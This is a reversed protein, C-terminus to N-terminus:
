IEWEFIDPEVYKWNGVFNGIKLYSENCKSCTYAQGYGPAALDGAYILENRCVPCELRSPEETVTTESDHGKWTAERDAKFRLADDLADERSPREIGANETWLTKDGDMCRVVGKYGWKTKRVTAKLM